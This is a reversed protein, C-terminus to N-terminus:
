RLEVKSYIVFKKVIGLASRTTLYRRTLQIKSKTSKTRVRRNCCPCYLGKKAYKKLMWAECVSCYVHTIYAPGIPRGSKYFPCDGKCFKGQKTALLNM